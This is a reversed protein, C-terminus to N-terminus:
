GLSKEFWRHAYPNECYRSIPLYGASEYMTIAEVLVANTDLRVVRHGMGSSRRELDGLLRRALGLGRWAPDIWMRKIEGIGPELTLLGGCGIVVEGSRGVVFEGAPPDFHEPDASLADGPDFGGDFRDHLEAFYRSMAQQATRTLPDISDFTVTASGILKGARTLLEGLEVARREGLLELMAGVQADSLRDLVEWEREGEVTLDVIRRRRDNPDARTTVLGDNTLSRLLRSTYGSDLGLRSRLEAVTTGEGGIEYLLRAEGLPRDRGLFHGDLAGIHQTFLRSFERISAM